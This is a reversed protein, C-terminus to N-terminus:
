GEGRIYDGIYRRVSRGFNFQWRDGVPAASVQQSSAFLLHVLYDPLKRDAVPDPM